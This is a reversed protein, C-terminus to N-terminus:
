VSEDVLNGLGLSDAQAQLDDLSENTQVLSSVQDDGLQSRIALIQTQLGSESLSAGTGLAFLSNFLSGTSNLYQETLARAQSSLGIGPQSFAAKGAELLSATSGEALVTPISPARGQQNALTAANLFQSAGAVAM